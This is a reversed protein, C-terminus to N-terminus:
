AFADSDVKRARRRAPWLTVLTAAVVGTLIGIFAVGLPALALAITGYAFVATWLYMILVATIMSHGLRVLRHHLHQKDPVFWWKGNWTRRVYSSVLDFLPVAMIAFPLTLPLWAPMLGARAANIVTSDMQGTFSLSSCALLLGLVMSGADGMFMRARHFNHPLFGLCVGETTASVLSATTAVVLNEERALVYTYIFMASAGVAVVGAALGDLGDVLNIANVCVFIFFVTILISTAQDLAITRGPLSVWYMRVGNIVAIGAALVQGAIKAIASLDLVDDLVGVVCIVGAALLVGGSDKTVVDHRGLFPMNSALLFACAVGFFMAVGGLYPTPRTHVDRERILAQVGYRIAVRRMVGCLLHTATAAVLMVLFYERMSERGPPTRFNEARQMGARQLSM